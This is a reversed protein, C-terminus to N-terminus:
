QCAAPIGTENDEDRTAMGVLGDPALNLPLPEFQKEPFIHQPKDILRLIQAPDEIFRQARIVRTGSKLPKLPLRLRTTSGEAVRLPILDHSVTNINV